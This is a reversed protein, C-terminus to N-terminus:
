PEKAGSCLSQTQTTVAADPYEASPGTLLPDPAKNQLNADLFATIYDRVAKVAKEPGM